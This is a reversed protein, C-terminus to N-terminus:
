TTLDELYNGELSMKAQCYKGAFDKYKVKTVTIRTLLDSYISMIKYCPKRMLRKLNLISM